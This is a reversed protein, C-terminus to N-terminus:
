HLARMLDGVSFDARWRPEDVGAPDPRSTMWAISGPRANPLLTSADELWGGCAASYFVPAATLVRATVANGNGQTLIRGRTRTAADRSPASAPRLVQCHTLTCLDFGDAAHRGRNALAYTRAAIALAERAAQPTASSTEGAVVRAVYEELPVSEVHYGGGTTPTGGRISPAPEEVPPTTTLGQPTTTLKRRLLEAAVDAANAGAGGPLAVVIGFRPSPAPALAVVLGLSRGSRMLATGTKAFADIGARGFASATGKRASD